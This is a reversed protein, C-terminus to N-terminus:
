RPRMRHQDREIKRRQRPDAERRHAMLIARARDIGGGDAYLCALELYPREVAPMSEVPYMRLAETVRAIAQQPARRAHIDLLGMTITSRLYGAPSGRRLEDEMAARVHREASGLQGRVAAVGGLGRAARVRAVAHEAYSDRLDLFHREAESHDGTAAAVHGAYYLRNPHIAYQEALHDLTRAAVAKGQDFPAELLNSLTLASSDAAYARAFYSEARAFEGMRQYTIGLNNLAPSNNPHTALLTGYTSIAQEPEALVTFYIGTTMYRGIEPLRDRHDYAREIMTLARFWRGGQNSLAIGLTRYATAVGPDLAIAEELLV